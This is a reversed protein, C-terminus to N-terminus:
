GTVIRAKAAVLDAKGNGNITAHLCSAAQETSLRGASIIERDVLVADNSHGVLGETTKPVLVANCSRCCGKRSSRWNGCLCAPHVQSAAFPKAGLPFLPPLTCVLCQSLLKVYLRHVPEICTRINAASFYACVQRWSSLLQCDPLIGPIDHM